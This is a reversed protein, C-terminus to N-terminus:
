SNGRLLGNVIEAFLVLEMVSTQYLGLVAPAPNHGMHVDVKVCNPKLNHIHSSDPSDLFHLNYM